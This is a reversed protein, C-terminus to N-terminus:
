SPAVNASTQHAIGFTTKLRVSSRTWPLARSASADTAPSAAAASAAVSLSFGDAAGAQEGRRDLEAQDVLQAHEAIRDDDAAARREQRRDGFVERQVQDLGPCEARTHDILAVPAGAFLRVSGRRGASARCTERPHPRDKQCSTPPRSTGLARREFGDSGSPGSQWSQRRTPRGLGSPKAGGLAAATGCGRGYLHRIGPAGAPWRRRPPGRRCRRPRPDTGGRETTTASRGPPRRTPSRRAARRRSSPRTEDPEARTDGIVKVLFTRTTEGAPFTLTVSRFRYDSGARATRDATTVHVTTKETAARSLSVTFRAQKVGKDGENVDVDRISLAFGQGAAGAAGPERRGHPIPSARRRRAPRASSPASTARRRATATATRRGRSAASTRPPATRRTAPTSRRAAPRWPTSCRGPASRSGPPGDVDSPQPFVCTGDGELNHGLSLIAAPVNSNDASCDAGFNNQAVISNTVNTTNNAWIGGGRFAPARNDTVTANTISMTGKNEIGGGELATENRAVTVNELTATAGGANTIGGGGWGTATASSDNIASNAVHLTGHNHIAGGHIHTTAGDYDAKGHTLDVGKLNLTGGYHVDFVRVAGGGDIVSESVGAGIVTVSGSVDLDGAAGDVKVGSTSDGEAGSPITLKFPGLGKPLVVEAGPTSDAEQVAARLTCTGQATACVGDGVASDPADSADDVTFVPAAHAPAFAVLSALVAAISAYPVVRKSASM